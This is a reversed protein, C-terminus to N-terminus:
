SITSIHNSEIIGGAQIICNWMTLNFYYDFLSLDCDLGDAFIVTIFMNQVFETEIGDRMINVVADLHNKWNGTTIDTTHITQRGTNSLEVYIYYNEKNPLLEANQQM